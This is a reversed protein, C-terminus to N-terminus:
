IRPGLKTAQAGEVTPALSRRLSDHLAPLEGIIDIEVIRGESVNFAM